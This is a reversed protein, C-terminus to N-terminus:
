NIYEKIKNTILKAIEKSGLVNPNLGDTTYSLINYHNWCLNQFLDVYPVAYAECNEIIAKNFDQITLNNVNKIIGDDNISDVYQTDSEIYRPPITCFILKTTPCHSQIYEIISRIAGYFTQTYGEHPDKINTMTDGFTGLGYKNYSAYNNTGILIIIFDNDEILLSTNNIDQGSTDKLTAILLDYVNNYIYGAKGMAGNPHSGHGAGSGMNACNSINFDYDKIYDTIYNVWIDKGTSRDSIDDGFIQIKLIPKDIEAPNKILDIESEINSIKVDLTTINDNMYVMDVSTKPYVNITKGDIEKALTSKLVQM